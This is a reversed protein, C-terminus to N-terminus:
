AMTAVPISSFSGTSSPYGTTQRPAATMTTKPEATPQDDSMHEQSRQGDITSTTLMSTDVEGDASYPMDSATATPSSARSRKAATTPNPRATKWRSPDDALSRRLGSADSDASCNQSPQAATAASSRANKSRSPDSAAERRLRKLERRTKKLDSELNKKARWDDMTTLGVTSASRHFGCTDIYFQRLERSLRGADDVRQFMEKRLSPDDILAEWGKPHNCSLRPRAILDDAQELFEDLESLVYRTVIQDNSLNREM